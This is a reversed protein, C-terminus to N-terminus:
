HEWGAGTRWCIQGLSSGATCTSNADTVWVPTGPPANSPLASFLIGDNFGRNNSFIGSVAGDFAVPGTANSSLDNGAFVGSATGEFLIGYAQNGPISASTNTVVCDTVQLNAVGTEVDIGSAEFVNGVNNDAIQVGTLKVGGGTITTPAVKIGTGNSGSVFGGTLGVDVYGTSAGYAFAVAPGTATWGNGAQGDIHCDACWINGVTGGQVLWGYSRFGDIIANVFYVNATYGSSATIYVSWDATAGTNTAWVGDAQNIYIGYSVLNANDPAGGFASNSLFTNIAGGTISLAAAAKFSEDYMGVRVNDLVTLGTGVLSIGIYGNFVTLNSLFNSGGAGTFSIATGASAGVGQYITMDQIKWVAAAQPNAFM